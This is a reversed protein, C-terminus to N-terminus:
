IFRRGLNLCSLQWISVLSSISSTMERRQLTTQAFRRFALQFYPVISGHLESFYFQVFLQVCLQVCLESTPEENENQHVVDGQIITSIFLGNHTNDFHNVHVVKNHAVVEM